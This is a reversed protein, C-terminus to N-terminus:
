QHRLSVLIQFIGTHSFYLYWQSVMTIGCRHRASKELVNGTLRYCLLVHAANRAFDHTARTIPEHTGQGPHLDRAEDRLHTPHAFICVHTPHSFVHAIQPEHLRNTLGKGQGPLSTVRRTECTHLGVAREKVCVCVCASCTLNVLNQLLLYPTRIRMRYLAISYTLSESVRCVGTSLAGRRLTLAAPRQMISPTGKRIWGTDSFCSLGLSSFCFIIRGVSTASSSSSSFGQSSARPFTHTPTPAHTHTHTAAHTHTHIHTHTHTHTRPVFNEALHIHTHM